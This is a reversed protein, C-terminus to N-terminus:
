PPEKELDSQPEHSRWGCQPCKRPTDGLLLWNGQAEDVAKEDFELFEQCEPCKASFFDLVSQMIEGLLLSIAGWIKKM